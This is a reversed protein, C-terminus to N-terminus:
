VRWKWFVNKTSEFDSSINLMERPNCNLLYIVLRLCVQVFPSPPNSLNSYMQSDQMHADNPNRKLLIKKKFQQFFINKWKEM